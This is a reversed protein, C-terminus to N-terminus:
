SDLPPKAKERERRRKDRRLSLLENVGIAMVILEIILWEYKAM